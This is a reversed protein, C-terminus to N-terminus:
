VASARPSLVTLMLSKAEGYALHASLGDSPTCSAQRLTLRQQVASVSAVDSIHVKPMGDNERKDTELLLQKLTQLV